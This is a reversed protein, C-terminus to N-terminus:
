HETGYDEIIGKLREPLYPAVENSDSFWERLKEAGFARRAEEYYPTQVRRVFDVFGDLDVVSSHSKQGRRAMIPGLSLFSLLYALGEPGVFDKLAASAPFDNSDCKTQHIVTLNEARIGPSTKWIVYGENIDEIRGGCIDCYWVTLPKDM